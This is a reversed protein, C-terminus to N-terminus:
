EIYSPKRSCGKLVRKAEIEIAHLNRRKVEHYHSKTVMKSTM